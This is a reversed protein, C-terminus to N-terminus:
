LLFIASKVKSVRKDSLNRRHQLIVPVDVFVGTPTGGHERFIEVDDVAWGHVTELIIHRGRLPYLPHHTPSFFIYNSSNMSFFSPCSASSYVFLM